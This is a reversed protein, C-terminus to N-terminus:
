LMIVSQKVKNSHILRQQMFVSQEESRCESRHASAQRQEGSDLLHIGYRLPVPIQESLVPIDEHFICETMFLVKSYLFSPLGDHDASARMPPDYIDYSRKVPLPPSIRVGDDAPEM